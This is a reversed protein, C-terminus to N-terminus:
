SPQGVRPDVSARLLDALFNGMAVLSSGALACGAVLFLDRSLLADLMLRGLGPWSTMTEVAISGSFLTAVVIGAVGLVPRLAQRAAHIWILRRVPVGRAAAAVIDPAAFAEAMSQSQLRELMAALPLALALTPVVFNGPAISLWGTSAALFLLMLTGIIPPCCVLAVSVITVIRGVVSRPRTGTVVGLPLGVIAAVLLALGALEATNRMRDAVLGAVPLGFRSSEGLDLRTLGAVWRALQSGIPQDLGLRHRAAAITEADAGRMFLDDTPDGPALRVLVLAASGVVVVFLIAVTFRRLVFRTLGNTV